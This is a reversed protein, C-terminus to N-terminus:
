VLPRQQEAFFFSHNFSSCRIEKESEGVAARLSEALTLVRLRCQRYRPQIRISIQNNTESM